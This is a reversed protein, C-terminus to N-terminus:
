FTFVSFYAPLFSITEPRLSGHVHQWFWILSASLVLVSDWVAPEIADKVVDNRLRDHVFQFLALAREKRKIAAKKKPLPYSAIVNTPRKDKLLSQDHRLDRALYAVMYDPLLRNTIVQKGDPEPVFDSQPLKFELLAFFDTFTGFYLWQQILSSYKLQADADSM